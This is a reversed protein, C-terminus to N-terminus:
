SVISTGNLKEQAKILSPVFEDGFGLMCANVLSQHTAEGMISTMPVSETMHTYYRIDKRANDLAFKLAAFNGQLTQALM